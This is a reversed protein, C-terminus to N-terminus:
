GLHLPGDPADDDPPTSAALLFGLTPPGIRGIFMVLGILARGVDDLESTAGM